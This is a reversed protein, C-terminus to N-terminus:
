YYRPSRLTSEPAGPNSGDGSDSSNQAMVRPSPTRALAARVLRVHAGGICPRIKANHSTVQM